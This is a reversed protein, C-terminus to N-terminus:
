IKWIIFLCSTSHLRNVLRHNVFFTVYILFLLFTYLVYEPNCPIYTINKGYVYGCDGYSNQGTNFTSYCLENSSSAASGWLLMCQSQHNRCKGEFCYALVQFSYLYQKDVVLQLLVYEDNKVLKYVHTRPM